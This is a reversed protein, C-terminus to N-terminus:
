YAYLKVRTITVVDFLNNLINNLFLYCVIYFSYLVYLFHICYCFGYFLYNNFLFIFSM